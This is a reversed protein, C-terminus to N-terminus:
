VYQRPYISSKQIEVQLSRTEDALKKARFPQLKLAKVIQPPKSGADIHERIAILDRLRRHLQTVLLPLPAGPGAEDWDM